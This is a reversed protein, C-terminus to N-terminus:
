PPDEEAVAREAAPRECNKSCEGCGHCGLRGSLADPDPSVGPFSEMWARQVALWVAACAAVALPGVVLPIL